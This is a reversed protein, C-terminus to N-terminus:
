TGQPQITPMLKLKSKKKKKSGSQRRLIGRQTRVTNNLASGMLTGNGSLAAHSTQRRCAAVGGSTLHAAGSGCVHMSFPPRLQFVLSSSAKCYQSQSGPSRNPTLYTRGHTIVALRCVALLVPVPAWTCHSSFTSNGHRFSGRQSPITPKKKIM